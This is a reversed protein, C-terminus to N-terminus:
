FFRLTSNVNPTVVASAQNRAAEPDAATLATSTARLALPVGSETGSTVAAPSDAFAMHTAADM